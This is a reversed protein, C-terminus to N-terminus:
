IKERVLNWYSTGELTCSIKFDLYIRGEQLDMTISNYLKEVLEKDIEGTKTRMNPPTKRVTVIQNKAIPELEINEFFSSKELQSTFYKLDNQLSVQDDAYVRGQFSVLCSSLPVEGGEETSEAQQYRRKGGRQYASAMDEIQMGELYMSDPLLNTLNVLLDTWLPEARTLSQYLKAYSEHLQTEKNVEALEELAPKLSEYQAQEDELELSYQKVKSNIMIYTVALAIIIIVSAALYIARRASIFAKERIEQPLLNIKPEGPVELALGVAVAFSPSLTELETSAPGLGELNINDFSKFFVADSELGEAIFDLIHPVNLVNGSLFVRKVEQGRFQQRYYLFSRHAETIIRSLAPIEDISTPGIDLQDEIIEGDESTESEPKFSAKIENYGTFIERSFQLVGNRFICLTSITDGVHIIATPDNEKWLRANIFSNIIATTTSSIASPVIDLRELITTQQYVEEKGSSVILVQDKDVGKDVVVGLACFDFTMDEIPTTVDKKVERQVVLELEKKTMQPFLMVRHRVDRGSVTAVVNKFKKRSPLGALASRTAEVLRERKEEEPLGKEDAIEIVNFGVGRIQDKIRELEVARVANSTIELGIVTKAM